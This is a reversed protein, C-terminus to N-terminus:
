VDGERRASRRSGAQAAASPKLPLGQQPGAAKKSTLSDQRFSVVAASGNMLERFPVVVFSYYLKSAQRTLLYVAFSFRMDQVGYEPFHKAKQM